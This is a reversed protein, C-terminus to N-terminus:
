APCDLMDVMDVMQRTLIDDMTKVYVRLELRHKALWDPEEAGETSETLEVLKAIEDREKETLNEAMNSYKRAKERQMCREEHGEDSIAMALAASDELSLVARKKRKAVVPM